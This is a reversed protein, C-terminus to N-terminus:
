DRLRCDYMLVNICHTIINGRTMCDTRQLYVAVCDTLWDLVSMSGVAMRDVNVSDGITCEATGEKV